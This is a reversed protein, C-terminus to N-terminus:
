RRDGLIMALFQLLYQIFYIIDIFLYLAMMAPSSFQGRELRAFDIFMYIAFILAGFGSLVLYFIPSQSWIFFGLFIFIIFFISVFMMYKQLRTTDPKNISTYAYIGFTTVAAIGFTLTVVFMGNNLVKLYVNVMFALVISSAVVFVNLIITATSESFQKRFLSAITLMILIVLEVASGIFYLTVLTPNAYDDYFIVNIALVIFAAISLSISLHRYALAKLDQGSYYDNRGYGYRSNRNYGM